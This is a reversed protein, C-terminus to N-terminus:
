RQVSGPQRLVTEAIARTAEATAVSEHQPPGLRAQLAPLHCACITWSQHIQGGDATERTLSLTVDGHSAHPDGASTM